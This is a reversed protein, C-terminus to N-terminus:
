VFTRSSSREVTFGEMAPGFRGCSLISSESTLFANASKRASVFFDSLLATSVDFPLIESPLMRMAAMVLQVFVEFGETIIAAPSTALFAAMSPILGGFNTFVVIAGPERTTM